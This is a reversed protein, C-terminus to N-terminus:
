RATFFKSFEKTQSERAQGMLSSAMINLKLAERLFVSLWFIRKLSTQLARSRLHTSILPLKLFDKGSARNRM